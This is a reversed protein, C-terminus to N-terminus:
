QPSGTELRLVGAVGTPPLPKAPKLDALLRGKIRDLQEPSPRGAQEGKELERVLHGCTECGAIHAAAEPLASIASRSSIILVEMDDCTM